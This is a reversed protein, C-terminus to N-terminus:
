RAWRGSIPSAGTSFVAEVDTAIVLYDAQLERALLGSCLDKDIVADVGSLGDVGGVGRAVPIGGGEAAIVVANQELLSRIPTLGLVRVPLPSAVARRMGAGDAAMVWNKETSLQQAQEAAYVPGIPKPPHQFAPNNPDLSARTYSTAVYKTM